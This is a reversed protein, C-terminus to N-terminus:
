IDPSFKVDDFVVRGGPKLVRYVEKILAAKGLPPLLNVVCNSLVCDISGSAVPLPDTLYAQVFAAQPPKLGQQTANRRALAIM